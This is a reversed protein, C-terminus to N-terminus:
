RGGKVLLGTLEVSHQKSTLSYYLPMKSQVRRMGDNYAYCTKNVNAGGKVLLGTLEASHEKSTLSYYLPMVLLSKENKFQCPDQYNADAGYELLLKVKKPADRKSQLADVLAENLTKPDINLRLSIADELDEASGDSAAKPILDEHRLEKTHDVFDKPEYDPRMGLLVKEALTVHAMNQLDIEQVAQESLKQMFLKCTLKHKSSIKNKLVPVTKGERQVQQTITVDLLIDSHDLEKIFEPLKNNPINYVARESDKDASSVPSTTLSFAISENKNNLSKDIKIELIKPSASNLIEELKDDQQGTEFKFM